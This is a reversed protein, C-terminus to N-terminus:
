TVQRDAQAFTGDFLVIEDGHSWGVESVQSQVVLLEGAFAHRNAGHRGVREIQTAGTDGVIDQNHNTPHPFITDTEYANSVCLGRVCTHGIQLAKESISRLPVRM